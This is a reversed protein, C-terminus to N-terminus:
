KPKFKYNLYNKLYSMKKLDLDKFVIVFVELQDETRVEFM